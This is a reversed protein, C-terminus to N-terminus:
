VGTKVFQWNRLVTVAEEAGTKGFFVAEEKVFGKRRTITILLRHFSNM